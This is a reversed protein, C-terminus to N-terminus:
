HCLLIMFGESDINVGRKEGMNDTLLLVITVGMVILILGGTRVWRILSWFLLIIVGESVINVGGGGMEGM